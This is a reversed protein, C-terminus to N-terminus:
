KSAILKDLKERSKYKKIQKERQLAASKSEYQEVRVVKYPGRNKTSRVKNGNHQALREEVCKASGVYYRGTTLSQLIYVYHMSTLVWDDSHGAM